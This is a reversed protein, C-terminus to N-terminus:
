HLAKASAPAELDELEIRNHGAMRMRGVARELLQNMRRPPFGALCVLVSRPPAEEIGFKEAVRVWVMRAMQLSERPGPPACHIIEFRSLLSMPIDSLRNATAVYSVHSADFTAPVCLDRTARATLSELASHLPALPDHNARKPSKDIEDLVVLPNAYSGLALLEFLVGPTANGWHRDSGHLYSNTQQAAMDILRSPLGLLEALRLAAFSKGTGPQGVLLLPGLKFPQGSMQARAISAEVADVLGPIHGLEDRLERLLPDLDVSGPQVASRWPGQSVLKRLITAMRRRDAPDASGHGANHHEVLQCLMERELIAVQNAAAPQRWQEPSPMAVHYESRSEERSAPAAPSPASPAAPAAQAPTVAASELQQALSEPVLLEATPVGLEYSVLPEFGAPIAERSPPRRNIRYVKLTFEQSGM